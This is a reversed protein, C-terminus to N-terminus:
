PQDFEFSCVSEVSQVTNSALRAGNEAARNLPLGNILASVTGSFFADGAGTTDVIPSKIAQLHGILGSHPDYYVAGYQGLTIIMSNLSNDDVYKRLYQLANHHDIPELPCKFLEAAEHHNCIFCEVGNLISPNHLIISMNGPLGFVPVRKTKASDIVTRSIEENLDLELAVADSEHLIDDIHHSLYEDLGRIDPMQSISGVLGGCEDLIALWIGLGNPSFQIHTIDVGALKLREIVAKGFDSEDLVSVFRVLNDLGALTEAVNRGVGGQICRVVGPNRGTTKYKQFSYGKKEVFVTGIVTIRPM